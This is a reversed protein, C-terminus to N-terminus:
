KLIGGCICIERHRRFENEDCQNIELNACDAGADIGSNVCDIRGNCNECWNLSIVSRGRNCSLARLLNWQNHKRTESDARRKDFLPQFIKKM